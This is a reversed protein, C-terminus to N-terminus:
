KGSSVDDPTTSKFYLYNIISKRTVIGIFNEHDDVVPVFNQNNAAIMLSSMDTEITIPLYDIHRKVDTIPTDDFDKLNSFPQDKLFYLLDGESITGVFQGKPSLIPIVQYRHFELIELVQRVTMDDTIYKIKSKPTLFFLVNM